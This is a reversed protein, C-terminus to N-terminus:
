PGGKVFLPLGSVLLVVRDAARAVEQNCWGLLDRYRRALANAPVIGLGVENTVLVVHADTPLRSLSRSLARFRERIADDSQAEDEFLVNSSWLTLCDVLVVRHSGVAAHVAEELALPAEITHWRADRDDQHRRIRRAMDDDLAQATAVFAATQGEELLSECREQAWTSKGSRAGGTVLEIM